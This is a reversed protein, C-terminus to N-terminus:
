VRIDIVFPKVLDPIEKLQLRMPDIEEEVIKFNEFEVIYGLTELAKILRDVNATLHKHVLENEVVGQMKLMNSKHWEIHFLVIGLKGTELSVIFKINDMDKLAQNGINKNIQVQLLRYEDDIKVPFSLYYFDPNNDISYRAMVNLLKQGVVEKEVASINNILLNILTKEMGPIEKQQLVDKVLTLGRILDPESILNNKMANIIGKVQEEPSTSSMPLLLTETLQTLLQFVPFNILSTQTQPTTSAQTSTTAAHVTAKDAIVQQQISIPTTESPKNLLTGSTQSKSSEAEASISMTNTPMLRNETARLPPSAAQEIKNLITIIEKLLGALDKKGDVFQALASLTTKNIPLDKAMAVGVLELNKASVEGLLNVGQLITKLNAATVPLNHQILKKAMLVNNRDAPLGIDRLTTSLNRNEIKELMEPTLVKLIVKGAKAEDVMLFLQQGKNVIVESLAEILRGKIFVSVLGNGKVEQVEGKLIEGKNFTIGSEASTSINLVFKDLPIQSNLEM